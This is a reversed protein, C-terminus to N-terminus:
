IISLTSESYTETSMREMCEFMSQKDTEEISLLNEKISDYVRQGPVIDYLQAVDLEDYFPSLFTSQTLSYSMM